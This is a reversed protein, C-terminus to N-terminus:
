AADLLWVATDRRRAVFPTDFSWSIAHAIAWRRAKERDLGLLGSLRDLRDLVQRRSHGFEFSNIVPSLGFEREGVLPKPDIALFPRREAALINGGHLDQHLLVQEGQNEPLDHLFELAADILAVPCDRGEAEWNAVLAVRWEFAQEALLRFPEGAPVWLKPLLDACVQVPDAGAIEALATGPQCREILLAHREGDRAFLRVAGNGNWAELADAELLCEPHPWQLKLVAAGFPSRVPLTYSVHAREFPAGAPVLNWAALMFECLAPLERLWVAAEPKDKLHGLGAPLDM